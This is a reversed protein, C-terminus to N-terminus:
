PTMRGVLSSTRRGSGRMDDNLEMLQQVLGAQEPSSVLNMTEDEEPNRKLDFLAFPKRFSDDWMRTEVVLKWQDKYIATHGINSNGQIIMRERGVAGSDGALLPMLNYSDMADTEKQEVGTLAYLTAMVDQTMIKEDSVSGPKIHGPWVAIFPVRSGGEYIFGKDARLGATPDHGAAVTEELDMGGNDSTVIFLTNEFVGEAKLTKVLAGVQLDFENMMDMHPSPTTGNVPTGFFDDPPNHPHHVAQSCYYVFFPKKQDACDEIFRVAKGALIPGARRADWASDGKGPKGINTGVPVDRWTMEKLVSQNSLPMWDNNEYFAYPLNQIGSPLWCSYDFGLAPPGGKAVKSVNVDQDGYTADLAIETESNEKYWLSGFGWKGFFATQYGASKMLRGLTMQDESIGNDEFPWWIGWPKRSRYCYNGTMMALRTPACLTAPTYARKFYIGQEILSDLNPTSILADKGSFAEQLCAIDGVGIDDALIVVVNPPIDSGVSDMSCGLWFTVVFGAIFKIQRNM